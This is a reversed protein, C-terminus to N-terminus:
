LSPSGGSTTADLIFPDWYGRAEQLPLEGPHRVAWLDYAESIGALSKSVVGPGRHRTQWLCAIYRAIGERIASPIAAAALVEDAPAESLGMGDVWEQTLIPPTTFDRRGVQEHAAERALTWWEELQALDDDKPRFRRVLRGREAAWTLGALITTM